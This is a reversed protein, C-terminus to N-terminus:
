EGHRRSIPISHGGVQLRFSRSPAYRVHPGGQHAQAVLVVQVPQQCACPTLKEISDQLLCSKRLVIALQKQKHRNVGQRASKKREALTQRAYLVDSKPRS